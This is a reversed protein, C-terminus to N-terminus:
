NFSLRVILGQFTRSNNWNELAIWRYEYDNKRYYPDSINKNDLLATYMSGPVTGPVNYGLFSFIILEGINNNDLLSTCM